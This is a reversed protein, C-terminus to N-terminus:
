VACLGHMLINMASDIDIKFFVNDIMVRYLVTPKGNGFMLCLAKSFESSVSHLSCAGM